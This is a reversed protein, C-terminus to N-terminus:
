YNENLYEVVKEIAEQKTEGPYKGLGNFDKGWIKVMFGGELLQGVAYGTLHGTDELFQCLLTFRMSLPLDDNLIDNLRVRVYEEAYILVNNNNVWEEFESKLRGKLEM